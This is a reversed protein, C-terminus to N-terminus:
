KSELPIREFNGCGRCLYGPRGREIFFVTTKGCKVCPGVEVLPVAGGPVHEASKPRDRFSRAATAATFTVAFGLVIWLFVKNAREVQPSDTM